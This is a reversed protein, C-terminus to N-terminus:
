IDKKEPPSSPNLAMALLFYIASGPDSFKANLTKTDHPNKQAYISAAIGFTKNLKHVFSIDIHQGAKAFGANNNNLDKSTFNSIPFSPGASLLLYNRKEQSYGSIIAFLFCPIFLIQKKM